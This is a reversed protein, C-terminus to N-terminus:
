LDLFIFIENVILNVTWIFNPMMLMMKMRTLIRPVATVPPTSFIIVIAM